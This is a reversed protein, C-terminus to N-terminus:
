LFPPPNAQPISEEKEEDLAEPPYPPLNNPLVRGSRLNMEQIEVVYALYSTEGSYVQQAQKNNRNVNEQTPVRPQKPPAPHLIHPQSPPPPM